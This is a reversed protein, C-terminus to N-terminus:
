RKPWRAQYYVACGGLPGACHVLHEGDGEQLILPRPSASGESASAPHRTAHLSVAVTVIAFALVLPLIVRTM